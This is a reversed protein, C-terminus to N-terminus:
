DEPIMHVDRQPFPISVGEADFREKVRKTVAWYVVWYDSTDCWPRCIFNVSSDALEHVEIIPAPNELVMECESVVSEIIAKAKDMDDGYGIGFVMDVRRTTEHTINTIVDGWISNNPIIVVQNDLTKLTTSVLSMADVTGTKGGVSVLDGVDFPRYVLIMLGSAFNSLTGQLAFAVIFGIAGIAAVFAGMEFGLVGLAVILGIVFIMKKTMTVFFDQLLTSLSKVRGVTRRVIGGVIAALIRFGLIILIFFALNKGLKFGGEPSIAWEYLRQGIQLAGGGDGTIGHSNIDIYATWRDIKAQDGGKAKYAKLIVGLREAINDRTRSLDDRNGEAEGAMMNEYAVASDRLRKGWSKEDDKVVIELEDLTLPKLLRELKKLDVDDKMDLIAQVAPDTTDDPKDAAADTKEAAEGQALASAALAFVLLAAFLFTLYGRPIKM